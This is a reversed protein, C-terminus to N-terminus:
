TKKRIPCFCKRDVCGSVFPHTFAQNCIKQIQKRSLNGYLLSLKKTEQLQFRFLSKLQTASKPKRTQYLARRLVYVPLLAGGGEHPRQHLTAQRLAAFLDHQVSLRRHRIKDSALAQVRIRGPLVVAQRKASARLAKSLTPLMVVTCTM